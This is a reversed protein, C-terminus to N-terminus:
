GHEEKERNCSQKNENTCNQMRTIRLQNDNHQGHKELKTQYSIPAKLKRKRHKGQFDLPMTRHDVTRPDVKCSSWDPELILHALESNWLTLISWTQDPYMGSAIMLCVVYKVGAFHSNIAMGCSQIVDYNCSRFM